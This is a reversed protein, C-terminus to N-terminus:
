KKGYYALQQMHGPARGLAFGLAKALRKRKGTYVYYLPNIQDLLRKMMARAFVLTEEESLYSEICSIVCTHANEFTFDIRGVIKKNKCFFFTTAEKEMYSLEPHKKVLANYAVVHSPHVNPKLAFKPAGPIAYYIRDFYLLFPEYNYLMSAFNTKAESREQYLTQLKQKCYERETFGDAPCTKGLVPISEESVMGKIDEESVFIFPRIFTIGARSLHMEPEFTAVKGGHIMNMLLTELADDQHHAFAVKNCRYKKAAANIAAKKMRSCISCPIHHDEKTHALLIPYVEKADDVRLTLGLSAAFDEMQKTEFGPFGLDLSVPVISFHKQSFKRYISLAKLLAMSDKGGSVGVLIRDREDILSFTEDAKRLCALVKRIYKVLSIM